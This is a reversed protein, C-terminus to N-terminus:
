EKKKLLEIIRELDHILGKVSRESDGIDAFLAEMSEDYGSTVYITYTVPKQKKSLSVVNSTM